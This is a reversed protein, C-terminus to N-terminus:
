PECLEALSTPWDHKVEWVRKLEILRYTNDTDDRVIFSGSDSESNEALQEAAEVSSRAQCRFPEEIDDPDWQEQNDHWVSFSRPSM